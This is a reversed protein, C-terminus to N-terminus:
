PAEARWVGGGIDEIVTLQVWIGERAMRERRSPTQPAFLHGFGLPERACLTRYPIPPCISASVRFHNRRRTLFRTQPPGRPGSRFDGIRVIDRVHAIASRRLWRIMVGASRGSEEQPRVQAAAGPNRDLRRLLARHGRGWPVRPQRRGLPLTDGLSRPSLEFWISIEAMWYGPCVPSGVFCSRWGIAQVCLHASSVAGGNGDYPASASWSGVPM